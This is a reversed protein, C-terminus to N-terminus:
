SPGTALRHGGRRHGQEVHAQLSENTKSDGVGVLWHPALGIPHCATRLTHVRNVPSKGLPMADSPTANSQRAVSAVGKPIEGFPGVM